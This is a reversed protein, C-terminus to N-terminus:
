TASGRRFGAFAWSGLVFAVAISPILLRWDTFLALIEATTQPGHTGPEALIYAYTWFIFWVGILAVALRLLGRTINM